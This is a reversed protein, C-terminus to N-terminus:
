FNAIVDRRLSKSPVASDQQRIRPLFRNGPGIANCRLVYGYFFSIQRENPVRSRYEDAVVGCLRCAVIRRTSDRKGVAPTARKRPPRLTFSKTLTM